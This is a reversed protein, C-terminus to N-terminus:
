KVKLQTYKVSLVNIPVVQLVRSIVKINQYKAHDPAIRIKQLVIALFHSNRGNQLIRVQYVRLFKM